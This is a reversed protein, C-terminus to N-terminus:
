HSVLVSIFLTNLVKVGIYQLAKSSHNFATAAQIINGAATRRRISDSAIRVDINASMVREDEGVVAVHGSGM